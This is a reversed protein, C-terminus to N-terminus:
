MTSIKDICVQRKCFKMMKLVCIKFFEYFTLLSHGLFLGLYGGIGSFLDAPTYTYYQEKSIYRNTLYSLKLTATGPLRGNKAATSSSFCLLAM